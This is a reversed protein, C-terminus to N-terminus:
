HAPMKLTELLIEATHRARRGSGDAIQHRCSTGSAAVIDEPSADRIAPLLSLEAVKMSVQYHEKQYGFAGAMGCCGSAIASVNFNRPLSLVRVVTEVSSLAKQHCHVHVRVNQRRDGFAEATIRKADMERAIFEEFMLSRGALARAADRLHPSVLDPYEDKFCSIASPEIGVLVADDGVIDRLALVNADALRKAKKLFGQSIAARGSEGPRVLVVDYGLARLLEIAAIGVPADNVDTFEDCLVHVRRGTGASRNGREWKALTLRSLRPISRRPAMGMAAKILGATVPSSVLLNFLPAVRTAARTVSAYNAFLRTRLSPPHADHWHQLFESKLRAMDVGTPCESKCGKCALCLDLVDRIEEHDFRNAKRSHTLFERLVNARARTSDKEDRTAMYSPCMVGGATKKCEANGNCKETARLVGLDRGWDFYTAIDPTPWQPSYRLSVDMPAARVIKGPNLINAADFLDKVSCCLRYNAQGIMKPLFEARMRGDGHEGSLSGRVSKVLSSVDELIARRQRQGEATKPNLFVVTHLEGAGVHASQTFPVNSQRLMAELRGVYEPLDSVDIACDEILDLPKVDGPVANQLGGLARRLEVINEADAEFWLPWAYGLGHSALENVMARAQAEVQARTEGAFEIVLISQPEGDIWRSYRAIASNPNAKNNEFVQQLHFDGILECATPKHKLATLTARLSDNTSSFHVTVLGVVPPLVPVLRLTAETVLCLTGESGCVLSCMNFDPGGPTFVNSRALLDIAYGHNRRKISPKPFEAEIERRVKPSSLARYLGEYIRGELTPLRRKAHFADETLAEFVVSSGDALIANCSLLHDRTSGWILSHMGCANNGIMGGILCRNTTSTEPGFLLGHPALWDNLRNRNVGTGVRVTRAKADFALIRDFARMDVVLGDGVVQGAVSTGAGRPILGLGNAAAHRVIAGLDELDEPVVVGIPLARYSSADSAYIVRHLRDVRIQGKIQRALEALAAPLAQPGGAPLAGEDLTAELTMAM